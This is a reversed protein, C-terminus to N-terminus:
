LFESMIHFVNNYIDKQLWLVKKFYTFDLLSSLTCMYAGIQEVLFM